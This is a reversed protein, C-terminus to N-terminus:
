SPPYSNSEFDKHLSLPDCFMFYRLKTELCIDFAVHTEIHMTAVQLEILKLPKDAPKFEEM